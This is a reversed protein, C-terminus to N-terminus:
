LDDLRRLIEDATRVGPKQTVTADRTLGAATSKLAEAVGGAKIHAIEGHIYYWLRNCILVIHSPLYMTAAAVLMSLLTLLVFDLLKLNVTWIMFHFASVDRPSVAYTSFIFKETPTLMYLAFTVEYQYNKIQLWRVFSALYSTQRPSETRRDAAPM